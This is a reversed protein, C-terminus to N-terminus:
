CGNIDILEAKWRHCLYVGLLVQYLNKIIDQSKTSIQWGKIQILGLYHFNSSIHKCQRAHLSWLGLHHFFLWRLLSLSPVYYFKGCVRTVDLYFIKLSMWLEFLPNQCMPNSITIARYAFVLEPEPGTLLNGFVQSSSV